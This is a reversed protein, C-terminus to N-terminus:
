GGRNRDLKGAFSINTDGGGMELPLTAVIDIGQTTTDFDNTYFRLQTFNAADTIGQAILTQRDAETLVKNAAAPM